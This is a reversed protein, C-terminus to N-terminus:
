KQLALYAESSMEGTVVKLKNKADDRERILMGRYSDYLQKDRINWSEAPEVEEYTRLDMSDVRSIFSELGGKITSTEPSTMMKKLRRDFRGLPDVSLPKGALKFLDNKDLFAVVGVLSGPQQPLSGYKEIKQKMGGDRIMEAPSPIAATVRSAVNTIVQRPVAVGKDNIPLFLTMFKLAKLIPNNTVSVKKGVGISAFMNQVFHACNRGMGDWNNVLKGALYPANRTNAEKAMNAVDKESLPTFVCESQRAFSLAFDTGLGTRAAFHEPTEGPLPKHNDHIQVGEMAKDAIVKQITKEILEENVTEGPLAAGNFMMDIGDTVVYLTNKLSKDISVTVGANRDTRDFEGPGCVKLVPKGASKDRCAGKIYIIAHGGAGGPGADSKNYQSVSCAVAFREHFVPLLDAQSAMGDTRRVLPAMTEVAKVEPASQHCSPCDIESLQQAQASNAAVALILSGLARKKM